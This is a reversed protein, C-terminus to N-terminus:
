MHNARRHLTPGARAKRPAAREREDPCSFVGNHTTKPWKPAADRTLMHDTGAGHLLALLAANFCLMGAAKPM